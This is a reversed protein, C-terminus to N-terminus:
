LDERDPKVVAVGAPTLTWGTAKGSGGKTENLWGRFVLKGLRPVAGQRKIGWRKAADAATVASDVPRGNWLLLIWGEAEGRKSEQKAKEVEIEPLRNFAYTESNFRAHVKPCGQFTRADINLVLVDDATVEIAVLTSASAQKVFSGAFRNRAKDDGAKRFHDVVVVGSQTESAFRKVTELIEALPAVENGDPCLRYLCDVVVLDGPQVTPKLEELRPLIEKVNQGDLSYAAIRATMAVADEPSEAFRNGRAKAFRYRMEAPSLELDFVHVRAQATAFGHAGTVDALWPLGAAVAFGADQTLWSKRSKSEAGLLLVEGQRLFGDIIFPPRLADIEQWSMGLTDSHNVRFDVLRKRIPVSKQAQEDETLDSFLSLLAEPDDPDVGYSRLTGWPAFWQLSKALARYEGRKEEPWVEKLLEIGTEDGVGDFVASSINRWDPYNPRSHLRDLEALVERAWEPRVRGNSTEGFFSTEPAPLPEIEDADNWHFAQPDYSVYCLRCPDKTAPDLTLGQKRYYVEAALWSGLHLDFDAPCLGIAKVGHGSLSLFCAAVFPAKVAIERIEEVTMGPHDKADFDLQLFGSHVAGRQQLPTGKRRHKLHASLSVAPVAQRSAKYAGQGSETLRQRCVEVDARWRGDRIGEMFQSLTLHDRPTTNRDTAFLSFTPEPLAPPQLPIIKEADIGQASAHARPAYGSYGLINTISHTTM